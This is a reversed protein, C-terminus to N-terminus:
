TYQFCAVEHNNNLKKLEPKNEICTLCRDPCREYFICGKQMVRRELSEIRLEIEKEWRKTPDPIPISDILSRTYPHIPNNIIETMSGKEVLNGSCLVIGKDAIYHAVNFDHTIYLASIGHTKKLSLLTDLFIARLSVDIMQREGGSIQHPYRGLLDEPRIGVAKLTDEIMSKIETRKALNFKKIITELVRDVKYFPNYVSYPDQFVVQVERRYTMKDKRLLDLINQGKYLMEGSTPRIFGLLLRLITTKGSGSEGVLATIEPKISPIVFSVDDVAKIVRRARLGSTFTKSLNRVELLSEKNM